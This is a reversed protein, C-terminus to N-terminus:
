AARACPHGKGHSSRPSRSKLRIENRDHGHVQTDGGGVWEATDAGGNPMPPTMEFMANETTENTVNMAYQLEPVGAASLAVMPTIPVQLMDGSSVSFSSPLAGQPYAETFARATVTGKSESFLVGAQAMAHDYSGATEM